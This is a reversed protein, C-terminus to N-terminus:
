IPTLAGLSSTSDGWSQGPQAIDTRVCSAPKASGEADVATGHKEGLAVM